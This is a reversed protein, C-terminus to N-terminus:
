PAPVFTVRVYRDPDLYKRAVAQLDALAVARVRDLYALEDELRWVTEARGLARARGEATENGFEHQAEAVTIARRRERETVGEDRVRRIEALIEAEVRALSGADTQATVAILGGAELASYGTGISSVINLTDRLTRTLRSTRTQGLITALLDVASVDAHSIKPAQWGMAIYAQTGPRQMEVRSARLPPVPPAPLPRSGTRPLRGFTRRAHDLVDSAPAPGVVVLAFAEPVYLRRYFALLTDRSLNRVLEPTGIVPRGYPHGEFVTEQLRRALFRQPTDEGLRMEELVVRKEADLTTTELSANVSIDALLEIGAHTRSAPLVMHYFTYDLSTGANMRGGVGEVDRDIFGTPRTTTGKFLMHELYHALGLETAAEDRGGARVWLQLASVDSARHEQVILRVGNPLVERVPPPLGPTSSPKPSVLACGVLLILVLLLPAFRAPGAPMAHWRVVPADAGQSARGPCFAPGDAHGRCPVDGLVPAM